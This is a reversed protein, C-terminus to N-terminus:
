LTAKVLGNKEASLRSMWVKLNNGPIFSAHILSYLEQYADYEDDWGSSPWVREHVCIFTLSTGKMELVWYGREQLWYNLDYVSEGRAIISEPHLDIYLVDALDALLSFHPAKDTGM